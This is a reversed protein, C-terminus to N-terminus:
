EIEHEEITASCEDNAWYDNDKDRLDSDWEEDNRVAEIADKKRRFVGLCTAEPSSFHLKVVVYCKM